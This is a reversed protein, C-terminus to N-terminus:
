EGDVSPPAKYPASTGRNGSRRRAGADATASNSTVASTTPHEEVTDPDADGTGWTGLEDDADPGGDATGDPIVTGDVAGDTWAEDAAGEVGIGAPSGSGLPPVEPVTPLAPM